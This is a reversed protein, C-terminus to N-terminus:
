AEKIIKNVQEISYYDKMIYKIEEETLNYLKSIFINKTIDEMSTMKDMNEKNFNIIPLEDLEYNNIHNNSSTIKFRWNLLISNLITRYWEIKSEDNFSIYNCSNGLIDKNDCIVFNLRKKVDVNCIQQCILRKKNHDNELYDKSKNKLFGDIEVFENNKDILGNKTIMNGRVLRYGTDNKTVFIKNLTLDLEGRKNRIEGIDKIKPHISIKNLIDWGIKDIYPVEYNGDFAKEILNFDIYFENDGEKVLIKDTKDDKKLYFIVTSQSVNEFFKAGEGFYNICRVKNKLLLNKRLKKSSADAFLSSPCIVGIEAKSNAINLIMEIAIRYYNLMGEISHNYISSKKFYNVEKKIREELKKYYNDDFKEGLNKKNVKLLVYPPNSLIVNFGGEAIVDKFDIKYNVYIANSPEFENDILMNKNLINKSIKGLNSINKEKLLSFAKIRLIDVALSDIDIGYLNNLLISDNDLKIKKNLYIFAESYFRGTGCGFDLVKLKNPELNDKLKNDITNTTIERSIENPTYVSGKDKFNIKSTKSELANNKYQYETNLYNIHLNELLEGIEILNMDDIIKSFDLDIFSFDVNSSKLSNFYKSLEFISTKIKKSISTFIIKGILMRHVQFPINKENDLDFLSQKKEVENLEEKGFIQKIFLPNNIIHKITNIEYKCLKELQQNIEEKIM